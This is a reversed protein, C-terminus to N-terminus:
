DCQDPVCNGNVEITVFENGLSIPIVVPPGSAQQCELEFSVTAESYNRIIFAENQPICFLLTDNTQMTTNLILFGDISPCTFTGDINCTPIITGCGLFDGCFRVDVTM